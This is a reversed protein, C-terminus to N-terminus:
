KYLHFTVKTIGSDLVRYLYRAAISSYPRWKKCKKKVAEPSRDETKYLWQYSQLFAVDEFPLVDQRDLVFILYMKATWIGIGPLETLIKTVDEDSMKELDSFRISEELIVDTTAHIYRAKASSTGIGRIQEVSLNHIAEPTIKGNCMEELRGYIKAGAKVSLMQEIIEHVLFPFPDDHTEYTIPGVMRMVKALRKDKNALYLVSEVHDDLVVIKGM